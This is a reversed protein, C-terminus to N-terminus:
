IEADFTNCAQLSGQEYGTVFWQRRMQSSGHTWSSPDVRGSGMQQIHDDGIAEASQIIADIDQTTLSELLPAEGGPAPTTTAYHAWMGAYCDAQLEVRVAGSSEGRPDQQARDIDGLLTQVRHGFEHAVVYMQSAPADSGGLQGVLVSDFFDPDMYVENDAPCYFPGMESSGTGCGTSIQGSFINTHPHRYDVGSQPRLQAGWVDELSETTAVIRCVTDTNAQALTCNDIAQQFEEGSASQQGGQTGLDVGLDNPNIGLMVAVVLVVMGGVGGGIAMGRRGRGGGSVGSTDLKGQQRFTM